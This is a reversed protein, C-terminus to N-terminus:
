LLFTAQFVDDADTPNGTARRATALVLPGHRRVLAAFAQEDRRAVFAKLLEADSRDAARRDAILTRVRPLLAASM